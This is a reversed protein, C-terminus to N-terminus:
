DEENFDIMNKLVLTVSTGNGSSSNITMGYEDGCVIKIRRAINILAISSIGTNGYNDPHAIEEQVRVLTDADMGNGNDSITIEINDAILVSMSIDFIRESRGYSIANEVVPQLLMRPIFIKEFADEETVNFNFSGPYRIQMISVYQKLVHIEEMLSIYEEAANAYRLLCSLEECISAAQEKDGKYVLARIANLTNVTFHANIQKKLLMILNRERELEAEKIVLKSDFLEKEKDEIRQVMDNVHIVLGDFYEEGTLELMQQESNMTGEIVSNVPAIFHKKWYNAFLFVVMIIILVTVPLVLAFYDSIEKSLGAECYVIINYDTLGIQKKRFFISNSYANDLDKETINKNSCLISDGATLVIGLYDIDEYESMIEELQNMDMLLVIYGVIEDDKMVPSGSGIYAMNNLTVFLSKNNGNSVKFFVNEIVTNSLQGRLRYYSGDKTYIICNDVPCSLGIINECRDETISGLDYFQLYNKASAMDIIREYHALSYVANDIGLLQEDIRGILLESTTKAVETMHSMTMSRIVGFFFVWIVVILLGLVIITISFKKDIVGNKSKVM